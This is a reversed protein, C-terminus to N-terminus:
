GAIRGNTPTPYGDHIVGDLMRGGAKKGFRFVWEGAEKGSHKHFGDKYQHWTNDDFVACRIKGEMVPDPGFGAYEDPGWEGWQKFLFPVNAAACQDRLSRFWDPHSPRADKGSEGGAIVWSISHTRFAAAEMEDLCDFHETTCADIRKVIDHLYVPGLLPECSLFHVKAPVDLLHPIRRNAEEQNEVTTGLWVNEYGDRWDFPLYKKINQPRKTLLLWDLNPTEKILQWLDDRWEQQISKHNDFVDAISACFVRERRGTGELAKNWKVPDRWTKQRVRDAHPGWVNWGARNNLAEAYCNDCAPSIKTCGRWPSFTHHTWEIKSNETM